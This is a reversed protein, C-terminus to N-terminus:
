LKRLEEEIRKRYQPRIELRAQLQMGDDDDLLVPDSFSYACDVVWAVDAPNHWISEVPLPTNSSYCGVVRILGLIKGYQFTEVDIRFQNDQDPHQLKLRNCYDSYMVNTPKSKSSAVLVWTPFQSKLHWSRNEINKQGRVLASAWPERVKVIRIDDDLISINPKQYIQKQIKSAHVESNLTSSEVRKTGQTRTLDQIANIYSDITSPKAIISHYAGTEGPADPHRILGVINNPKKHTPGDAYAKTDRSLWLESEKYEDNTHGGSSLISMHKLRHMVRPDAQQSSGLITIPLTITIRSGQNAKEDEVISNRYSGHPWGVPFMINFGGETYKQPAAPVCGIKAYGKSELIKNFDNIHEKWNLNVKGCPKSLWEEYNGGVKGEIYSKLCILLITPTMPGIIFTAGDEHGMGGKVHALMQVGYKRVWATTSNDESDVHEQLNAILEFPAMQDHHVDLQEGNPPKWIIHPFHTPLGPSLGMKKMQEMANIVMKIGIDPIIHAWMGFGKLSWSRSMNALGFGTNGMKVYSVAKQFFKNGPMTHFWTQQKMYDTNFLLRMGEDTQLDFKSMYNAQASEELQNWKLKGITIDTDEIGKKYFMKYPPETLMLQLNERFWTNACTRLNTIFKISLDQDTPFTYVGYKDLSDDQETHCRMLM